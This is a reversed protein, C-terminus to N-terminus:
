IMVSVFIRQGPLEDRDGRSRVSIAVAAFGSLTIDAEALTYFCNEVNM